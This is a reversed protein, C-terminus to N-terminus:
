QVAFPLDVFVRRLAELGRGGISRQVMARGEPYALVRTRRREAFALLGEADLVLAENRLREVAAAQTLSNDLYAAIIDAIAPELVTVLSEIRVIRAAESPALGAAPLLTDRYVSARREDPFLLDVGAEAAGEAILLHRGFGPTLQLELWHRKGVLEDDIWIHQVHHGPYGEHCALRLARSIDLVASQNIEIRTRHAGQYRAYGDWPSGSVLVLDVAEDAPLTIHDLTKARCADLAARMVPEVRGAPIALRRKYASYRDILPGKGPLERELALRTLELAGSDIPARTIGFAARAEEDFSSSRGLLRAAALHLASLQATLYAVRDASVPDAPQRGLQRQISEIEALLPAVPERPGPKWEPAGRWGDVLEPDHQALKLAVRVYSEALLPLGGEGGNPRKPPSGAVAGARATDPSPACAAVALIALACM